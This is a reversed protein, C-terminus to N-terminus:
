RIWSPTTHVEHRSAGVLNLLIAADGWDSVMLLSTQTVFPPEWFSLGPFQITALCSHLVSGCPRPSSRSDLLQHSLLPSCLLWAKLPFLALNTVRYRSVKSSVLHRRPRHPERINGRPWPHNTPSAFPMAPEYNRDLCLAVAMAAM